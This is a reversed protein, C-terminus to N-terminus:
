LKAAAAHTRKPATHRQLTRHRMHPLRVPPRSVNFSINAPAFKQNLVAMQKNIADKPINGQNYSPGSRIVHWYVTVSKM